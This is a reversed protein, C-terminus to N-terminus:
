FYTGFPHGAPQQVRRAFQKHLTPELGGAHALDRPGGACGFLRKVTVEGCFFIQESSHHDAPGLQNRGLKGGDEESMLRRLFSQSCETFQEEIADEVGFGNGKVTNHGHFPLSKGIKDLGQTCVTTFPHTGRETAVKTLLNPSPFQAFHIRSDAGTLEKIENGRFHDHRSGAATSGLGALGFDPLSHLFSDVAEKMAVLSSHFSKSVEPYLQPPIRGNVPIDIESLGDNPGVQLYAVKPKRAFVDGAARSGSILTNGNDTHTGNGADLSDLDDVFLIPQM